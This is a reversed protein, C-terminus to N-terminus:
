PKSPWCSFCVHGNNAIGVDIPVNKDDLVKQSGSAVLRHMHCLRLKIAIATGSKCASHVGWLSKLFVLRSTMHGNEMDSASAHCPYAAHRRGTKITSVHPLLRSVSLVVLHPQLLQLVCAAVEPMRLARTVAAPDRAVEAQGVPSGVLPGSGSGRELSAALDMGAMGHGMSRCFGAEPLSAAHLGMHGSSGLCRVHAAGDQGDTAHLSAAPGQCSQNPGLHSSSVNNRSSSQMASIASERSIQPALMPLDNLPVPQCPLTAQVANRIGALNALVASPQAAQCLLPPAPHLASPSSAAPSRAPNCTQRVAQQIIGPLASTLQVPLSALLSPLHLPAPAGSAAGSAALGPSLVASPTSQQWHVAQQSANAHQLKLRKKGSALEGGAAMQLWCAM